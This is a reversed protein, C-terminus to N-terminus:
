KIKNMHEYLYGERTHIHSTNGKNNTLCDDEESIYMKGETYAVEGDCM